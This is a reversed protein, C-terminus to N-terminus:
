KFIHITFYFAHLKINKPTYIGTRYFFIDCSIILLLPNLLPDELLPKRVKNSSLPLCKRKAQKTLVHKFLLITTKKEPYRAM